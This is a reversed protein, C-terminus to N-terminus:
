LATTLLDSVRDDNALFHQQARLFRRLDVQEKLSLVAIDWDVKPSAFITTELALVARQCRDLAELIAKSKPLGVVKGVWDAVFGNVREVAEDKSWLSALHAARVEEYLARTESLDRAREDTFRRLFPTFASPPRHPPLKSSLSRRGAM